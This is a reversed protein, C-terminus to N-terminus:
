IHINNSFFYSSLNGSKCQDINSAVLWTVASFSSITIIEVRNISCCKKSASEQDGQCFLKIIHLSYPSYKEQSCCVSVSPLLSSCPADAVRGQAEGQKRKCHANLHDSQDNSSRTSTISLGLSLRLKATRLNGALCKISANAKKQLERDIIRTHIQLKWKWLRFLCHTFCTIKQFWGSSTM